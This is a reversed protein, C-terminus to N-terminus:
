RPPPQRLRVPVGRLPHQQAVVWGGQFLKGIGGADVGVGDDYYAVQDIPKGGSTGEPLLAQLLRGVNTIYRMELDNWTGDCCIVLRKKM